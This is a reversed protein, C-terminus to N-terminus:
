QPGFKPRGRNDTGTQVVELGYGRLLGKALPVTLPVALPRAANPSRPSSCVNPRRKSRLRDSTGCNESTSRSASASSPRATATARVAARM